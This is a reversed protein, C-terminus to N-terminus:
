FLRQKKWTPVADMNIEKSVIGKNSYKKSALCKLFSAPNRHLCGKAQEPNLGWLTCLNIVDYPGRLHLLSKAESSIIM